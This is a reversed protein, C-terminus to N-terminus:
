SSAAIEELREEVDRARAPDIRIGPGMTTSLTISKMYRGKAAAPKARLLEDIVAAYNAALDLDEFSRKGIILHVNGNKDTRYEVLGGKLDTVTKAVDETVTGSKPNPMLGRPGLVRGLKGVVPMMDPTAVTADFDMWGGSIREALDDAGVADAGAEEAERAKEGKAFVAVRVTKGTGKPLSFAGRVMQDPKRPDVGLRMSLEVTEDFKSTPLQHLIRIADVPSYLKDRDVKSLAETYRKGRKAM